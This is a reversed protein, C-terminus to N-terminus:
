CPGWDALLDLFDGIGYPAGWNALLELFDGIGVDGSGDLDWLCLECEDPIGNGNDDASGGGGIDDGDPTGNCNCDPFLQNNMTGRDLTSYHWDIQHQLLINRAKNKELFIPPDGPLHIMIWGTNFHHQSATFDPVRPGAAAIIDVSTFDSIPGFYNGGCASNHMYRLESNGADMEAPSVYGMLYLDSYGFVGGLIDTNFTVFSGALVAPGSGVWESLEMASGQGDVKWNWHAIRGCSANDGQM